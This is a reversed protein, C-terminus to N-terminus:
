QEVNGSIYEHYMMPVGNNEAVDAFRVELSVNNEDVVSFHLHPVFAVGTQGCTAILQGRRVREGLAVAAGRHEIHWYRARTGDEHRIIVRNGRCDRTLWCTKTNSDDVQVVVGERAAVIPAHMPMMFDLAYEDQHSFPGFNGQVMLSATGAPYPLYYPSDHIPGAPPVGGVNEQVTPACSAAAAVWALGAAWWKGRINM